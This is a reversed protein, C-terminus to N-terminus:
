RGGRTSGSTRTNYGSNTTQSNESQSPRQYGSDRTRFQSQSETASSSSGVAPLQNFVAPSPIDYVPAHVYVAAIESQYIITPSPEIVSDPENNVFALQTYCGSLVISFLMTLLPILLSAKITKM